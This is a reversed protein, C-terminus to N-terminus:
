RGKGFLIVEVTRVLIFLDFFVSRHKIYYIDYKLKELSDSHSSGYPYKLQAWGTIGPKVNHRQNYYPIDRMLRSVFEPREPRPGVFGMEGNFVNILQPLEDIRYKRIIRGIRTIRSDEKTAWQAGNQEADPHMSRFKYIKFTSGGLGVREQTYFVSAGSKRGDELYIFIAAALMFPWAFVFVFLALFLNFLYDLSTRIYNDSQFGNSFIVWSPYVLNVAIQGTEREMFDLVDLVEVGAVRIEFLADLPLVGRREDCAIILCDVNYSHVYEVLGGADLQLRRDESIIESESDGPMPLYGLLVFDRQDVKRRMRKEINSARKGAGLIVVRKKNAAVGHSDYSLYRVVMKLALIIVIVSETYFPHEKTIWFFNGLVLGIVFYAMTIAVFVRRAISSYSERLKSNYLGVSLSCLLVTVIFVLAYKFFALGFLLPNFTNPRDVILFGVYCSVIVIIVDAIIYFKNNISEVNPM